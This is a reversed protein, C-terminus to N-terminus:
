AWEFGTLQYWRCSSNVLACGLTSIVNLKLLPFIGIPVGWISFFFVSLIRSQSSTCVSQLLSSYLAARHPLDKLHSQAFLLLLWYVYHLSRHHPSIYFPDMCVCSAENTVQQVSNQPHYIAGSWGQCQFLYTNGMAHNKENHANAWETKGINGFLINENVLCLELEKGTLWLDYTVLKLSSWSCM